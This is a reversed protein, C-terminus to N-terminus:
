AAGERKMRKAEEREMTRAVAERAIAAYPPIPRDNPASALEYYRREGKPCSSAPAVIEPEYPHSRMYRDLDDIHVYLVTGRACRTDGVVAPIEGADILQQLAEKSRHIYRAADARVLWKSSSWSVQEGTGRTMRMVVM